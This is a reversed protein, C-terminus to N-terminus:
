EHDGQKQRRYHRRCGLIHNDNIISRTRHPPLDLPHGLDLNGPLDHAIEDIVPRCIDIQPQNGIPMAPFRITAIDFGNDCGSRQVPRAKQARDVFNAGIPARRQRCSHGVRGLQEGPAVVRRGHHQNGVPQLSALSIWTRKGRLKGRLPHPEGRMDDTKIQRLFFMCLQGANGLIGATNKHRRLICVLQMVGDRLHLTNDIQLRHCRRFRGLRRNGRWIDNEGRRFLDGNTRCERDRPRLGDVGRIIHPNHRHASVLALPAIM